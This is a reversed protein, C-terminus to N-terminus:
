QQLYATIKSYNLEFPIFSAFISCKQMLKKWLPMQLSFFSYKQLLRVMVCMIPGSRVGRQSYLMWVACRASHADDLVCRRFRAGGWFM